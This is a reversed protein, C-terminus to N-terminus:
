GLWHYYLPFIRMLLRFFLCEVLHRWFSIWLCTKHILLFFTFFFTGVSVSFNGSFRFLEWQFPITGVSVSYRIMSFTSFTLETPCHFFPAVKITPSDINALISSFRIGPFLLALNRMKGPAFVWPIYSKRFVKRFFFESLMIKYIPFLLETFPHVRFMKFPIIFENVQSYGTCILHGAFEHALLRAFEFFRLIKVKQLCLSKHITLKIKPTYTGM